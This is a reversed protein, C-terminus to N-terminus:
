DETCMPLVVTVLTGEGKKSDIRIEGCLLDVLNKTITLGIGSGEFERNYGFSEQEFLNFLKKLYDESIGIGEDQVSLFLGKDKRELTIRILGRESYKIANEVINTVILEFYKKDLEAFFPKTRYKVTLLLGKKIALARYPILITSLFDNVNVREVLVEMKNAVIKSMDLINNITTLLREGSLMIIELQEVLERNHSNRLIINATSGLIGNLPTRIEHSMNSLFSTKIKRAEEARLNAEKIGQEYQMKYSLNRFALIIPNEGDQTNVKNVFLEINKIGSKFAVKLDISIAQNGLDHLQPILVSRFLDSFEETEFFINISETPSSISSIGAMELLFPNTALIQGKENTLLLGIQSSNWIKRYYDDQPKTRDESNLNKKAKYNIRYRSWYINILIGLGLVALLILIILGLQLNDMIKDMENLEVPDIFNSFSIFLIFLFM